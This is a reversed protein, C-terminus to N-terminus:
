PAATIFGNEAMWDFAVDAPDEGDVDVRLNLSRMVEDTLLPSFQEFIGALEPFQELTETNFVPAVNYAPFFKQDDALVTLGLADIRGDTAFVEGFTCEGANTASYIAGVDYLGINSEPVGDPTGRDLGYHALMPTFGDPRSNFEPEVCYTRQDVPVKAMDSLTSLGYEAATENTVALAYTNNLPAKAGWTLGNQLDEDHVAQWQADQDPIGETHGLFSLWATGTYEWIIDADGELMLTRTPQSGPVNTLDSVTFGAAKGALVAMKGLILGETNNRGTVTVEAESAGEIPRISGPAADPVYSTAPELGCGALTGVIALAAVGVGLRRTSKAGNRKLRDLM